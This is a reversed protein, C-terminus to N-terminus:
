GSSSANSGSGSGANSSSNADSGSHAGSNAGSSSGDSSSDGSSSSTNSGSNTNNTTNSSTSNASEDSNTTNTSSSSSSNSSQYSVGTDWTNTYSPATYSPFSSVPTSELAADMFEKFMDNCSLNESTIQGYRDGIWCACVLEPTYGILTHDHFDSTTGTKGAVERNNSLQASVATGDSQTFVTKLVDTTAGCVSEDLVRTGTQKDEYVVDGHRNCIKSVVVPNYYIGGSALTAYASAMELPTIDSVGLTLTDVNMLDSTDVGLRACVDIVSQGGIYEQLQVYATNSSVATASQLSRIGYQINGYNEVTGLGSKLTYPSSCNVLTQPSIGAEIAAILTFVKFSSGTPRGGQAAINFQNDDYNEGGVMALVHGNQPDVAVLASELADNMRNSQDAVTQEAIDQKEIDLTTYIKLGGAFIDNMSYENLLWTRVYTTFYPYLYIGNNSPEEAVNLNLDSSAAEAYEEQTIHGYALMRALVANRREKCGEPNYVPNLNSPSQPIGALTAAEALTLDSAHKSFYHLSAAEIGYAGDGYNITNLYMLLIENKTYYKEMELALEAERIKREFSIDNMEDALITNRVLQQTITSAGELSGGALNNLVARAIGVLDVGNHEYFRSDETDITAQILQSNVADLSSLPERNELRFEALVTKGDAAYVTSKESYNFADSEVVSPLDETWGASVNLVGQICSAVIFCVSCFMFFLVWAPAHTRSERQKRRTNM